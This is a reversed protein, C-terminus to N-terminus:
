GNADERAEHRTSQEPPSALLRYQHGHGGDAKRWLDVGRGGRGLGDLNGIEAHGDAERRRRGREGQEDEVGERRGTTTGNRRKWVERVIDCTRAVNAM